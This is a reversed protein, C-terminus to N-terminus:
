QKYYSLFLTELSPEKSVMDIVTHGSLAALLGDFGGHVTCTVRTGDVAVDEV